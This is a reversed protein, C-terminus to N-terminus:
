LRIEKQLYLIACFIFLQAFDARKTSKQVAKARPAARETYKAARKAARGANRRKQPQGTPRGTHIARKGFFAIQKGGGRRLNM